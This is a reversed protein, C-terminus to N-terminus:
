LSGFKPLSKRHDFKEMGADADGVRGSRDGKVFLEAEDDAFLFGGGFAVLEGEHIEGPVVVEEFKGVRWVILNGNRFVEHVGGDADRIDDAETFIEFFASDFDPRVAPM